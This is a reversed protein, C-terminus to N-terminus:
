AMHDGRSLGNTKITGSACDMPNNGVIEIHGGTAQELEDDNLVKDTSIQLDKEKEKPM